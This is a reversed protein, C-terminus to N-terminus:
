QYRWVVTTRVVQTTPIAQRTDPITILRSASDVEMMRDVLGTRTMYYTATRSGQSSMRMSRGAQKGEGLQEYRESVTLPHVEIGELTQAIAMTWQTRRQDTADFIEVRRRSATTDGWRDGARAGGRLLAPLLEGLTPTLEEVLSNSRDPRLDAIGTSGMRGRWVTGIAGRAADGLPPTFSLSDLRIRIQGDTGLQVSVRAARQMRQLQSRGDPLTLTISDRRAIDATARFSQALTIRIADARGAEAVTVPSSAPSGGIMPPPPNSACAGALLTGLLTLPATPRTM